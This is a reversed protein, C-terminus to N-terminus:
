AEIEGLSYRNGNSELELKGGRETAMEVLEYFVNRHVLADLNARVHLVPFPEGTELTEVGFGDEAELRVESGENLFFKLLSRGDEHLVEVRVAVLPLAEVHIRWKEVPTVLFYEDGERKLISSFLKVLAARKIEGGQYYWRGERDIRMDLDGNLPPNWREVPPITSKVGVVQTELSGLLNTDTVKSM